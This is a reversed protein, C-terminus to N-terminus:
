ASGYIAQLTCGDWWYTEAVSGYVEVFRGDIFDVRWYPQDPAFKAHASNGCFFFTIRETRKRIEERVRFRSEPSELHKRYDFNGAGAALHALQTKLKKIGNECNGSEQQLLKTKEVFAALPTDLQSVFDIIRALEKGIESKRAELGAIEAEISRQKEGVQLIHEASVLWHCFLEEFETYNWSSKKCSSLKRATRSCRLYRWNPEGKDFYLVKGGCTGCFCLNTFLNASTLPRRGARQARSGLAVQALQFTDKDIIPPFYNEIPDGVPVRRKKDDSDRQLEHPQFWGIVAQNSLIKSIYSDQWGEGRKKGLGWPEVSLANLENAILRRGKGSITKEFIDKVIRARDDIVEYVTKSENLKLWAPCISTLKKRAINSRKIVWTDKLRKSKKRSEDHSLEASLLVKLMKGLDNQGREFITGDQLTVIKLGALMLENFLQYASEIDQRSLRDFNEILLYSGEPIKRDRVLQLFKALEGERANKGRYASVGLDRFPPEALELGHKKIYAESNDEQREESTGNAQQSRSFRVYVYAKPPAHTAMPAPNRKM